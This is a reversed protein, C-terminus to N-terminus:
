SDAVQACETSSPDVFSKWLSTETLWAPLRDTRLELEQGDTIEALWVREHGSNDFLYARSAQTVAASLLALSRHYRSVIRDQPVPHGGTRVRHNVRAINIEPDQTAVYYLYTRFGAQRAKRLFEVKDPSSMVTEFTCSVRADLLGHRIFDALVSAHYSNLEIGEFVARVAGDSGECIEIRVREVEALLGARALLPSRRMFEPLGQARNADIGFGSLDLRGTARLTKEIEDPNIYVGLWQPPLMDKITSKGSGNPGAFVRLRPKAATSAVATPTM